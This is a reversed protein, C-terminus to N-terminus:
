QIPRYFAQEGLCNELARWRMKAACVITKEYSELRDKPVGTNDAWYILGDKIFLTSEFIECTYNEDAPFLKMYNMGEFELEIVPADEFQRQIVIRLIRRDNLPHMWLEHDVNAGSVYYMEKICSDHLYCFREMFQRIDNENQLENWMFGTLEKSKEHKM